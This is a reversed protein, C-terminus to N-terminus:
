LSNVPVWKKIPWTYPNYIDKQHKVGVKNSMQEDNLLSFPWIKRMQEDSLVAWIYIVGNLLIPTQYVMKYSDGDLISSDHTVQHSPCTLSRATFIVSLIGFFFDPIPIRVAGFAM